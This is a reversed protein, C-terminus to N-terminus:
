AISGTGIPALAGTPAYRNKRPGHVTVRGRGKARVVLAADCKHTLKSSGAQDGGKTSHCVAFVIVRHEHAWEYAEAMANIPDEFESISDLIVLKPRVELAQTTWDEDRTVWVADRPLKLAVLLRAVDDTPMERSVLVVPRLSKAMTLALRTKGSGSRGWVLVCAGRPVGGGLPADFATGTRLRVIPSADLTDARVL